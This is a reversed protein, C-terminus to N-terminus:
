RFRQTGPRKNPPPDGDAPPGLEGTKQGAASGKENAAAVEVVLKGRASREKIATYAEGVSDLTFRRTDLRPVVKGGGVLRTAERLIDGHRMRGEGTLLPLLTFVGSYLPFPDGL